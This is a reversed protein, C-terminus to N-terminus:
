RTKKIERVQLVGAISAIEQLLSSTPARNIDILTYAIKERSKNLLSLINLEAAALKSSIQAVM